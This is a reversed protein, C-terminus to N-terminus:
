AAETQRLGAAKIRQRIHGLLYEADKGVDAFRGSGWTNQWALGLFYAGEVPSVGRRQVPQGRGNFMPVDVWGYDAIFGIAWVISTIGAAEMDLELVEEQPAWPPMYPADVPAEINQAAIHQDVLDRINNYSRDADDLSSRLGPEFRLQKGDVDKFAGYLSM